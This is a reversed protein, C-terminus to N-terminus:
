VDVDHANTVVLCCDAVVEVERENLDITAAGSGHSLTPFVAREANEKADDILLSLLLSKWLVDDDELRRDRLGSRQARLM